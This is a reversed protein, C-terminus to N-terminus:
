RATARVVMPMPRRGAHLRPRSRGESLGARPLGRRPLMRIEGFREVVLMLPQIQFGRRSAYLTEACRTERNGVM